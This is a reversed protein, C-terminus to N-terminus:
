FILYFFLQSSSSEGTHHRRHKCNSRPSGDQQAYYSIDESKYDYLIETAHPSSTPPDILHSLPTFIMYGKRKLKSFTDVCHLAATAKSPEQKYSASPRPDPSPVTTIIFATCTSPIRNGSAAQQKISSSIPAAFRKCRTKWFIITLATGYM